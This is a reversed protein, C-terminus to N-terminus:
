QYCTLRYVCPRNWLVRQTSMHADDSSVCFGSIPGSAAQAAAGFEHLSVLRRGPDLRGPRERRWAARWLPGHVRGLVSLGGQM